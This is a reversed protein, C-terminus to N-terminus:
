SLVSVINALRVEEAPAWGGWLLPQVVRGRTRSADRWRSMGIVLWEERPRDWSSAIAL